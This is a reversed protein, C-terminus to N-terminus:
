KAKTLGIRRADMIGQSVRGYANNELGVVNSGMGFFNENACIPIHTPKEILTENIKQYLKDRAAGLPTNAAQDVLSTLYDPVGWGFGRARLNNDILSQSEAAGQVNSQYLESAGDAFEITAQSSPLPNITVKIGVAALQQQVLQAANTLSTNGTPLILTLALNTAGAEALLKKAGAVDQKLAKATDAKPLYGGAFKTFIQRTPNCTGEGYAITAIMQRDIAKSVAQRVLPNSFAPKSYNAKLAQVAVTDAFENLKVNASRAAPVQDLTVYALDVQGSQIANLRANPDLIVSVEIRKALGSSKDWHSAVREFVAGSTNYSVVEYPGSGAPKTGLNPDNLGKPSVMSSIRMDTALGDMFNFTPASFAIKVTAADVVAVSTVTPMAAKFAPVGLARDLNAKVVTADFPSGDQFKVDTRLKMTLSLGDSPTTWSAALMAKPKLEPSYEVLQDYPYALFQYAAIPSAWRLPDWTTPSVNQAVRLTANRDVKPAKAKAAPALAAVPAASATALCAGSSVAVVLLFARARRVRM